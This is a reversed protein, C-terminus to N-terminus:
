QVLLGRELKRYMKWCLEMLLCKIIQSASRHANAMRQFFKTNRDGEKLWQVTSKQRWSIEESVLLRHIEVKLYTRNEALSASLAGLGEKEDPSRVEEFLKELRWKIDEFICMNWVKLDEKLLKLKKAFRFCPNDDVM